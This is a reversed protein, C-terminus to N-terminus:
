YEQLLIGVFGGLFRKDEKKAGAKWHQSYFDPRSFQGFM